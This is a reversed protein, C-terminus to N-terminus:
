LELTQEGIDGVDRLAQMRKELTAQSDARWVLLDPHVRQYPKVALSVVDGIWLVSSRKGRTTVVARVM